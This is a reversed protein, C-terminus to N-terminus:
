KQKRRGSPLSEGSGPTTTSAFDTEAFASDFDHLISGLHGRIADQCQELDRAALAAVLADHESFTKDGRPGINWSSYRIIQAQTNLRSYLEILLSHRSNGIFRQHFDWDLEFAANRDTFERDKCLKGIASNISELDAM